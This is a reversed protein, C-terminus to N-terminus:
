QIAAAPRKLYKDYNRCTKRRSSRSAPEGRQEAPPLAGKIRLLRLTRTLGIRADPGAWLGM